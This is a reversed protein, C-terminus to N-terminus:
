SKQSLPPDFAEDGTAFGADHLAQDIIDDAKAELSAAQTLTKDIAKIARKTYAPIWKDDVKLMVTYITLDDNHLCFGYGAEDLLVIEQPPNDQLNAFTGLVDLLLDSFDLPSEVAFTQLLKPEEAVGKFRLGNKKTRSQADHFVQQQLAVASIRYEPKTM